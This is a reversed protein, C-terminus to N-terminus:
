AGKKRMDEFRRAKVEYRPLSGHPHVEIQYGLNTKVRLQDKLRFLISDKEIEKGPLIEIKLLITDIDGKKDVV